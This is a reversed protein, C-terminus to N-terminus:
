EFRFQNRTKVEGPLDVTRCSILFRRRLAQYRADIGVPCHFPLFRNYQFAVFGIDAHQDVIHHSFFVM